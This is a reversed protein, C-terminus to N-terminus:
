DPQLPQSCSPTSRYALRTLGMGESGLVRMLFISYLARTAKVVFGESTLTLAGKIFSITKNRMAVVITDSVYSIVRM